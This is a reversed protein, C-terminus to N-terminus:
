EMILHAAVAGEEGVVWIMSDVDEATSSCLTNNSVSELPEEVGNMDIGALLIALLQDAVEVAVTEMVM